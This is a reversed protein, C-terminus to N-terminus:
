LGNTINKRNLYWAIFKRIGENFSVTPNYGILEKAKTIDAFTKEVDGPQLPLRNLKAEIGLEKEITNVMQLLSITQSEGLNLIEYIDNHNIIFDISKIIGEIIDDIYTYDRQTEGNGYFPIEKGNKILNTFKHIALDPRQRPGYVTFFRLMMIDIKYLHHYVHGMIECSKKTAAYPSISNDVTDTERFPVTKNNGYVSSSSACIFKKVGYKKCLELLHTTGKVNVEEYLLPNDISPRVGAMAALHIVIDIKHDKFISDMTNLNLIDTEILKYNPKDLNHLVNNKKIKVDYYNNFNDINLVKDGREVLFDCLHSGIFGAGGTVLINM